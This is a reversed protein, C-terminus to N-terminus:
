SVHKHIQIQGRAKVKKYSDAQINTTVGVSGTSTLGRCRLSARYYFIGQCADGSQTCQAECEALQVNRLEFLAADANLASDFRLPTPNRDSRGEFVLVYQEAQVHESLQHAAAGVLVVGQMKGSHSKCYFPFEGATTFKYEFVEVDGPRGSNFLGDPKGPNGSTVTHKGDLKWRVVDGVNIKVVTTGSDLGWHISYVVHDGKVEVVAKNERDLQKAEPDPIEQFGGAGANDKGAKPICKRGFRTTGSAIHTTRDCEAVCNGDLLYKMNTCLMCYVESTAKNCVCAESACDQCTYSFTDEANALLKEGDEKNLGNLKLWKEHSSLQELAPRDQDVRVGAQYLKSEEEDGCFRGYSGQGIPFRGQPCRDLCSGGSNYKRNKCRMCSSKEDKLCEHCDTPCHCDKDKQPRCRPVETTTTSTVTVTATTSHAPELDVRVHPADPDKGQLQLNLRQGFRQLRLKDVARDMYEQPVLPQPPFVDDGMMKDSKDRAVKGRFSVHVGQLGPADQRMLDFAAQKHKSELQANGGERSQLGQDDDGWVEFKPPTAALTFPEQVGVVRGQEENAHSSEQTDMNSLM